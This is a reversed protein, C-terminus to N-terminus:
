GIGIGEFKIEPGPECLIFVFKTLSAFIKKVSQQLSCNALWNYLGYCFFSVKPRILVLPFIMTALTMAYKEQDKFSTIVQQLCLIAADEHLVPNTSSGANQAAISFM